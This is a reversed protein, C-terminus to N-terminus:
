RACKNVEELLRTIQAKYPLLYRVRCDDYEDWGPEGQRIGLKGNGLRVIVAGGCRFGHLAGQLNASQRGAAALLMVWLHSDEAIDPRPDVVAAGLYDVIAMVCIGGIM